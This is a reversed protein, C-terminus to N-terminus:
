PVIRHQYKGEPKIDNGNADKKPRIELAWFFSAFLIFMSEESFDAAPCRSYLPTLESNANADDFPPEGDVMDLLAM